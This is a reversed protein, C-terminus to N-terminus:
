ARPLKITFTSGKGLTSLVSIKGNSESVIREAICLGLGYGNNTSHTRSSDSRYFRNFIHPLDKPSIGIGTDKIAIRITSRSVKTSISIKGKEGTYKIANELLITLLQNFQDKNTWVSAQTTATTIKQAKQTALPSLQKVVSKISESVDVSSKAHNDNQYRALLLLNNTLNKLNEIDDLSETLTKKAGALTLHKNRLTVEISTKLATLPTKLEHSADAVFRKQEELTVEIPQLTKGALYYGALASIILIVGNAYALIFIVRAKAENFDEMLVVVPAQNPRIVNRRLDLRTEISTFRRELEFRVGNYIVISFSLSITMIILLYWSTLKIRASTFM